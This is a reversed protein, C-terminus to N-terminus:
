LKTITNEKNSFSFTKHSTMLIVYGFVNCIQDSIMYLLRRRFIELLMQGLKVVPKHQMGKHFLIGALLTLTVAM